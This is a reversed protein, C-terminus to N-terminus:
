FFGRLKAPPRYGLASRKIPPWPTEPVGDLDAVCLLDRTVRRGMFWAGSRTGDIRVGDGWALASESGFPGEHVRSLREAAGGEIIAGVWGEPTHLWFRLTPIFHAPTLESGPEKILYEPKSGIVGAIV